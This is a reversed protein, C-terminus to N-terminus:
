SKEYEYFGKGTKRGHNGADVLDKQIDSPTFRPHKDFSKWIFSSVLYNSDLGILDMLRFPGMKFGSSELLKDITEHSAADDELARLSEIFYPRTVRNVIFGPMDKAMVPSKGLKIAFEKVTNSVDPNTKEAAIVEVLKM